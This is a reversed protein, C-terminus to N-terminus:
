ITIGDLHDVEHQVIRASLRSLRISKAEFNENMYFVEIKKYRKRFTRVGPRSLCLEKASTRGAKKIPIIEPNILVLWKGSIFVVIVRKLIGIQNSALGVCGNYNAAYYKATDKLDDVFPLVETYLDVPESVLALKQKNTVISKVAM